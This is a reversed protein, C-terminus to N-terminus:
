YFSIYELRKVIINSAKVPQIVYIDLPSLKFKM